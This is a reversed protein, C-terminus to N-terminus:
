YFKKKGAACKERRNQSPTKKKLTYRSYELFFNAQPAFTRSAAWFEIWIFTGQYCM